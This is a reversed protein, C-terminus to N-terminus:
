KSNMLSLTRYSKLRVLMSSAAISAMGKGEKLQVLAREFHEISLPARAGVHRCANTWLLKADEPKMLRNLSVFLDQENPPALNYRKVASSAEM